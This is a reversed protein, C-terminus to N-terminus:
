RRYYLVRFCGFRKQCVSCIVTSKFLGQCHDVIVSQHRKLHRSWAEVAAEEDSAFLTGEVKETYEKKLVRNLDEHIGDMLFSLLEQSDQQGFGAFQENCKGLASKFKTPRVASYQEDSWVQRLLDAFARAVEGKHGLPNDSNIHDCYAGSLFYQVLQPAHLLCQVAANMYCTNGLNNLGAIGRAVGQGPGTVASDYDYTAATYAPTTKTNTNTATSDYFHVVKYPDDDVATRRSRAGKDIFEEDADDEFGTNHQYGSKFTTLETSTANTPSAARADDDAPLAFCVATPKSYDVNDEVLVVTGHSIGIDEVTRRQDEPDADLVPVITTLNPFDPILSIRLRHSPSRLFNSLTQSLTKVTWYKGVTLATLSNTNDDAQLPKASSKTPNVHCLIDKRATFDYEDITCLHLTIPYLEISLSNGCMIKQRLCEPGSSPHFVRLQRWVDAHMLAYEAQKLDPRLETTSGPLMLPTVDVPGPDAQESPDTSSEVTNGADYLAMGSYDYFANFWDRPVLQMPGSNDGMCSAFVSSYMNRQHAPSNDTVAHQGHDDTGLDYVSEDDSSNSDHYDGPGALDYHGSAHGGSQADDDSDDSSWRAASTMKNGLARSLESFNFAFKNKDLPALLKIDTKAPRNFTSM